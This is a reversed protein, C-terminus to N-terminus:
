SSVATAAQGSPDLISRLTKTVPLHMPLDTNTHHWAGKVLVDIPIRHRSNMEGFTDLAGMVDVINKLASPMAIRASITVIRARQALEDLRDRKRSKLAFLAESLVLNGKSHGVMIEFPYGSEFISYLTAVDRSKRVTEVVTGTGDAGARPYGKARWLDDLPEFVHRMSNLGGFWFFGGVAEAMLDALGYGSVVALAPGGIADAVNRAFAAAGLASSGVGSIAIARLDAPGNAAFTQYDPWIDLSPAASPGVALIAGEAAYSPGVQVAEDGSLVGLDYFMYDLLSNRQRLGELILDRPPAPITANSQLTALRSQQAAQLSALSTM